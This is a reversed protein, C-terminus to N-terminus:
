RPGRGRQVVPRRARRGRAMLILSSLQPVKRHNLFQIMIIFGRESHFVWHVLVYQCEFYKNADGSEVIRMPFRAFRWMKMLTTAVTTVLILIKIHPLCVNLYCYYYYYRQLIFSFMLLSYETSECELGQLHYSDLVSCCFGGGLLTLVINECACSLFFNVGLM